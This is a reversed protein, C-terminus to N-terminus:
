NIHNVHKFRCSLQIAFMRKKNEFYEQTRSAADTEPNPTVGDFDKIRVMVNGTFYPSDVFHPESECNINVLQLNDLSPGIKVHLKRVSEDAVPAASSYLFSM